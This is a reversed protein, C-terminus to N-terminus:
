KRLSDILKNQTEILSTIREQNKIIAEVINEPLYNHVVPNGFISIASNKNDQNTQSFSDELFYQFDVNFFECIKYILIFDIKEVRNSEIKCLQTQSIGLETALDDQSLSKSERLKKIKTGINM